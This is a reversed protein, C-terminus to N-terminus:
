YIHSEPYRIVGETIQDRSQGLHALREAVAGLAQLTTGPHDRHYPVKGNLVSLSNFLYAYEPDYNGYSYYPGRRVSMPKCLAFLIPPFVLFLLKSRASIRLTTM